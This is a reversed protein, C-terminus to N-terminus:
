AAVMVMRSAEVLMDAPMWFSVTDEGATGTLKVDHATVFKGTITVRRGCFMVWDGIELKHAEIQM